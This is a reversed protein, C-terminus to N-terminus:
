LLYSFYIFQNFDVSNILDVIFQDDGSYLLSVILFYNIIEKRQKFFINTTRFSSFFFEQQVNLSKKPKSRLKKNRHMILSTSLDIFQQKFMFFFELFKFFKFDKIKILFFSFTEREGQIHNQTPSEKNPSPYM